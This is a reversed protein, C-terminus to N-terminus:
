KDELSQEVQRVKGAVLEESLYIQGCRPCRPAEAQMERDMYRFKVNAPALAIECKTCILESKEAM